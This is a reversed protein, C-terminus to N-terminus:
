MKKKFLGKFIYLGNKAQPSHLFLHHSSLRWGGVKGGLSLRWDSEGGGEGHPLPPYLRTPLSDGWKPANLSCPVQRLGKSGLVRLVAADKSALTPAPM